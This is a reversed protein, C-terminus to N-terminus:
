LTGLLVAYPLSLITGGTEAECYYRSSTNGGIQEIYTYIHYGDEPKTSLYTKTNRSQHFVCTHLCSM